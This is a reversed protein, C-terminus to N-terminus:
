SSTSVSVCVCCVCVCVCVACMNTGMNLPSKGYVYTTKISYVVTYEIEGYVAGIGLGLM